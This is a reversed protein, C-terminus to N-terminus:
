LEERHDGSPTETTQLPGNEYNRDSREGRTYLVGITTSHEVKNGHRDIPRNDYNRVTTGADDEACHWIRDTDSKHVDVGSFNKRKTM